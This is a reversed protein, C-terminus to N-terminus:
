YTFFVQLIHAIERLKERDKVWSARTKREIKLTYITYRLWMGFLIINGSTCGADGKRKEAKWCLLTHRAEELVNEARGVIKSM